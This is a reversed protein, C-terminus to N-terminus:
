KGITVVANAPSAIGGITITLPQDGTSVGTPIRLNLQNLGAFTPAVGTYLIDAANLTVGGLQVTVSQTV